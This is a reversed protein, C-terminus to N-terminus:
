RLGLTGDSITPFSKMEARPENKEGPKLSLNNETNGPWAISENNRNNRNKHHYATLALELLRETIIKEAIDEAKIKYTAERIAKKLLALKDRRNEPFVEFGSKPGEGRNM